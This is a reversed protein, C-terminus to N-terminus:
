HSLTIQILENSKKVIIAGSFALFVCPWPHLFCAGLKQCVMIAM